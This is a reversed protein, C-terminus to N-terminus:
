SLDRSNKKKRRARSLDFEFIANIAYCTKLFTAIKLLEDYEQLEDLCRSPILDVRIDNM